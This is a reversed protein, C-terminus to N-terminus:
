LCGMSNGSCTISCDRKTMLSFDGGTSLVNLAQSILGELEFVKIGQKELSKRPNLGVGSVLLSHCDKLIEGLDEWRKLGGGPRPLVREEHFFWEGIENTRYIHVSSAEGIHQNILLGEYSAVAVSPRDCDPYLPGRSIRAMIEEMESSQDKGLIGVADARCRRCHEMQPIMDRCRDRIGSVLFKDPEDMDELSSGATKYYPLCNHYDVGLGAMELAISEIHHDNIGPLIISNIKVIINREKLRRIARKQNELLLQAGEINRYVRKGYRFWSYIDTSIEPDVANVTVTVHSVSLDALQDVSPLLNLGNTSVCLLIDPDEERILTLTELTEDTNAFPDGPGAIGVVALFPMRKKAERYYALAQGPSLLHSSVGPRSENVCDFKRNCYNCQVNCRSAVPLHIRGHDACSDPNFCPHNEKNIM